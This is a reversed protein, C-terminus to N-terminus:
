LHVLVGSFNIEDYNEQEYHLNKIAESQTHWSLINKEYYNKKIYTEM